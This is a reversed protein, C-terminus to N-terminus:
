AAEQSDNTVPLVLIDADMTNQGYGRYKVHEAALKDAGQQTSSMSGIRWTDGDRLIVAWEYRHQSERGKIGGIFYRYGNPSGDRRFKQTFTVQM